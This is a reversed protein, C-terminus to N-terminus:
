TNSDVNTLVVINAKTAAYLCGKRYGKPDQELDLELRISFLTYFLLAQIWRFM